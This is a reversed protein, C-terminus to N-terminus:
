RAIYMLPFLFIWIVDVLHWYIGVYEVRQLNINKKAYHAVVGMAIAGGIVHCAHLATATYYFGWFVNRTITFGLLIDTTYEYAKVMLFVGAGGITFWLLKFARPGDKREAAAHALVASLSSTLLVFTNFAGAALITHHAEHSWWPNNLRNLLYSMLVGGFIFIESALLIWMGLRGTPIGTSSRDAAIPRQFAM